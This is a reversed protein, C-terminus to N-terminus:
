RWKIEEMFDNIKEVVQKPKELENEWIILCVCGHERYHELTANYTSSKRMDPRLLPSHWYNGFLELVMRDDNDHIFDPCKGGIVVEGDGVYRFPLDNSNIIDIFHKELDNPKANRAEMIKELAEESFEGNYFPNNEGTFYEGMCEKSCFYHERGNIRKDWFVKGCNDCVRKPRERRAKGRCESSCFRRKYKTGVGPRPVEFPEGCWECLKQLVGGKWNPNNEGQLHESLWEGRCELSCFHDENEEMEHPYREIEKGCQSCPVKIKGKYWPHNKGRNYKHYCEPSCFKGSRNSPYYSFKKRCNVCRTQAKM